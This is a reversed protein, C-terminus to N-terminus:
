VTYSMVAIPQNPYKVNYFALQYFYFELLYMFKSIIINKLNM